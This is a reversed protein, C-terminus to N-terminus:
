KKLTVCQQCQRQYQLTGELTAQRRDCVQVLHKTTTRFRYPVCLIVDLTHRRRSHVVSFVAM